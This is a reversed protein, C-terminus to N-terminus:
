YQYFLWTGSTGNFTLIKTPPINGLEFQGWESKPISTLKKGRWGCKRAHGKAWDLNTFAGHYESHYEPVGELDQGESEFIVIVM